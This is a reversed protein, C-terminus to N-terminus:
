KDLFRQIEILYGNPDRFFCHYINYKSNLTPTKEAHYGAALLRQYWDDVEDTIFCIIVGVPNVEERQCFGIYTNNGIRYIRCDGQDRWLQLALINEYFHATKDLDKTNM